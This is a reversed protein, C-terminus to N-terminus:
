SLVHAVLSHPVSLCGTPCLCFGGGANTPSPLAGDPSSAATAQLKVTELSQKLLGVEIGKEEVGKKEEEGRIVKSLFTITSPVLKGPITLMCNTYKQFLLVVQFMM